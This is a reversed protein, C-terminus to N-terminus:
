SEGGLAKEALDLCTELKEQEDSPEHHGVAAIARLVAALQDARSRQAELERQHEKAREEWAVAHRHAEDREHAVQGLLTLSGDANRYHPAEDVHVFGHARAYDLAAGELVALTAASPLMRRGLEDAARILVHRAELVARTEEDTPKSV